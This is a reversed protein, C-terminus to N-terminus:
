EKKNPKDGEKTKSDSNRLIDEVRSFISLPIKIGMGEINEFISKVETFMCYYYAVTVLPIFTPEVRGAIILTTILLMYAGAKTVSSRLRKSTIKEGSSVSRWVGSVSDIVLLALLWWLLTGYFGEVLTIITFLISLVFKYESGQVLKELYHSMGM